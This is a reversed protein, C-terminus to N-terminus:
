REVQRDRKGDDIEAEKVCQGFVKFLHVKCNSMELGYKTGTLLRRNSDAERFTQNLYLLFTALCEVRYM